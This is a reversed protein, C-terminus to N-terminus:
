LSSVWNLAANERTLGKYRWAVASGYIIDTLCSCFFAILFIMGLKEPKRVQYSMTPISQQLIQAQLFVPISWLWGITKFTFPDLSFVNLSSAADSHNKTMNHSANRSNSGSTTVYDYYTIDYISQATM